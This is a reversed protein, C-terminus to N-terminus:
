NKVRKKLEEIIATNKLNENIQARRVDEKSVNAGSTLLLSVIEPSNKEVAFSLPTKGDNKANIKAGAKILVRLVEPNDNYRAALMLPTWGLWDKANVDAGAKILISLVEPNSNHWAAWMLALKVTSSDAGAKILINSVEPNNNYRAATTLSTEGYDDESNVGAGAKIAAVVEQPTGSECLKFFDELNMAAEAQCVSLTALLL